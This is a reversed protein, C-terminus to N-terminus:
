FFYEITAKM